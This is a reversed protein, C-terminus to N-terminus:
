RRSRRHSRPTPPTLSDVRGTLEAIQQKQRDAMAQLSAITEEYQGIKGQLAKNSNGLSAVRNRSRNLLATVEQVKGLLSARYAAKPDSSSESKVDLPVHSKLGKVKSLEQDIDGLLKTTEQFGQMVSDQAAAAAHADALQTNLTTVSDLATAHGATGFGGKECAVVALLAILTCVRRMM